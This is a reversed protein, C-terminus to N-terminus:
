KEESAREVLFINNQRTFIGMDGSLNKVICFEPMKSTRDTSEITTVNCGEWGFFEARDEAIAFTEQRLITKECAVKVECDSKRQRSHLATRRVCSHPIVRSPLQTTEFDWLASVVQPVSSVGATVPNQNWIRISAIVESFPTTCSHPTYKRVIYM